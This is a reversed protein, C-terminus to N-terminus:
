IGKYSVCAKAGQNQSNNTGYLVKVFGLLTTQIAKTSLVTGLDLIILTYSLM